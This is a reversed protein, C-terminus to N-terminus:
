MPFKTPVSPINYLLPSCFIYVYLSLELKEVVSPCFPNCFMLIETFSVLLMYLRKTGKKSRKRKINKHGDIININGYSAEVVRKIKLYNRRTGFRFHVPTLLEGDGPVNRLWRLGLSPVKMLEELLLTWATATDKSLHNLIDKLKLHNRWDGNTNQTFESGDERIDVFPVGTKRYENLEEKTPQYRRSPGQIHSSEPPSDEIDMAQPPDSGPILPQEEKQTPECLEELEQILDDLPKDKKLDKCTGTILEERIVARFGPMNDQTFTNPQGLILNKAFQIVYVGCDWSNTQKEFDTNHEISLKELVLGSRLLFRQYIAVEQTWDDKVSDYIILKNKEVDVVLLIWHASGVTGYIMPLLIFDKGRIKNIQRWNREMATGVNHDNIQNWLYCNLVGFRDDQEAYLRVIAEVVETNLWAKGLTTNITKQTIEIGACTNVIVDNPSKPFERM